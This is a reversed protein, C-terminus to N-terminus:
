RALEYFCASVADLSGTAEWLMVSDNSLSEVGTPTTSAPRLEEQLGLAVVVEGGRAWADGELGERLGKRSVTEIGASEGGLVEGAAAPGVSSGRVDTLGRDLCATLADGVEREKLSLEAPGLSCASLGVASCAVLVLIGLRRM